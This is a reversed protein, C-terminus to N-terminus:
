TKLENVIKERADGVDSRSIDAFITAKWFSKEIGILAKIQPFLKFLSSYTGKESEITVEGEIAPPIKPVDVILQIPEVDILTSLDEELEEKKHLKSVISSTSIDYLKQYGAVEDLPVELIPLFYNRNWIRDLLDQIKENKVQRLKYLIEVDDAYFKIEGKEYEIIDTLDIINERICYSVAQEFMREASKVNLNKYVIPYLSNRMILFQMLFPIGGEEIAIDYDTLQVVGEMQSIDELRKKSNKDKTVESIAEIKRKAKSKASIVFEKIRMSRVTFFQLFKLPDMIGFGSGCHYSDRNIYDLRDIDITSAVIRNLFSEQQGEIASAVTEVSIDADRLIKEIEPDHRIIDASLEKHSRHIKAEILDSLTHSFPAHGIDHLLALAPLTDKYGEIYKTTIDLPGYKERTKSILVDFLRKALFNTGLSHELRTHNAGIYLHYVLGLQQVHQLRHLYKTKLLKEEWDNLKMTGYIPDSLVKM